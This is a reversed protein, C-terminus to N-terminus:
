PLLFPYPCDRGAEISAPGPGSFREYQVRCHGTNRGTADDDARAFTVVLHFGPLPEGAPATVEITTSRQHGGPTARDQCRVEAQRGVRQPACAHPACPTTQDAVPGTTANVLAIRCTTDSTRECILANGAITAGQGFCNDAAGASPALGAALLVLLIALARM